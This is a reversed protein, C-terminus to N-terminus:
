ALVAKLAARLAPRLTSVHDDSFKASGNSSLQITAQRSDFAIKAQVKDLSYTKQQALHDLAERVDKTGKLLVKATVGPEVDLRSIQLSDILASADLSSQLCEIWMIPNVNPVILTLKFNCVELLKNTLDRNSRSISKIELNPLDAYLSFASRKYSIREIVEERGFPDTTVEQTAIKEIYTADLFDDRIREVSFGDLAGATFALSKLRAGLMRISVPWEAVAWRVSNM